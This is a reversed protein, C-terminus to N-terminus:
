DRRLVHDTIKLGHDTIKILNGFTLGPLAGIRCGTSALLLIIMRMRQDATQLAQAIQENSYARGKMVRKCEGLYRIVKKKNLIVDNLQYFTFIPALLYKITAYAIGDNRLSMICDILQAEIVKPSNMELLSAVETVRVYNM